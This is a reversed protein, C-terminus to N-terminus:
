GKHKANFPRGFSPGRLVRQLHARLRTILPKTLQVALNWVMMSSIVLVLVSLLLGRIEVWSPWRSQGVSKWVVLMSRGFQTMQGRILPILNWAFLSWVVISLVSYMVLAVCVFKPWPLAKVPKKLLRYLAYKCIRIPEQALATVGLMDALVWYGDFRLIPNLSFVAAYLILIVAIQFPVWHTSHYAAALLAGALIQFYNGGLDVVVRQWRNLQWASSVDSYFAPYMLYITFGIDSPKAGFRACASAHGFEHIILTALFLVYGVLVDDGTSKISIGDRFFRIGALIIALLLSAAIRRDYLISLLLAVRSTVSEPILKLRFWFGWPLRQKTAADDIAQLRDTLKEYAARLDEATVHEGNRGSNIADALAQLSLGSNVAHILQYASASIKVRSGKKGVVLYNRSVELTDIVVADAIGEYRQIQPQHSM